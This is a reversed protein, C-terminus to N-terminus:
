DIVGRIWQLEIFVAHSHVVLSFDLILAFGSRVRWHSDHRSPFSVSLGWESTEIVQYLCVQPPRFVICLYKLIHISLPAFCETCVICILYPNCHICIMFINIVNSKSITFAQNIEVKSSDINCNRYRFFSPNFEQFFNANKGIIKGM